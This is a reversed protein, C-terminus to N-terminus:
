NFKIQILDSSLSGDPIGNMIRPALFMSNTFTALGLVLVTLVQLKTM